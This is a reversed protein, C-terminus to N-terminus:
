GGGGERWAVCREVLGTLENVVPSLRTWEKNDIGGEDRISNITRLLSSTHVEFADLYGEAVEQLELLETLAQALQTNPDGVAM